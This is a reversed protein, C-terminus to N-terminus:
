SVRSVRCAAHTRTFRLYHFLLTAYFCRPLHENQMRLRTRTWNSTLRATAIFRAATVSSQVPRFSWPGWARRYILCSRTVTRESMIILRKNGRELLLDGRFRTRMTRAASGPVRHLRYCSAAFNTRLINITYNRRCLRNSSQLPSRRLWM